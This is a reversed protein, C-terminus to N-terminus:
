GEVHGWTRGIKINKITSQAVGYDAAIARQPRRDARIKIIDSSTLKSLGHREGRPNPTKMRGKQRADALNDAQTGLFLHKPNICAPNDCRHCVVLGDPITGIHTEYSLRHARYKKGKFGLEGHGFRSRAGTFNICGNEGPDSYHKLRQEVTFSHRVYLKM